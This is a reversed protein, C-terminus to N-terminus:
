AEGLYLLKWTKPGVVGDDSLKYDKQVTLVAAETQPGYVGDIKLNHGFLNNVISQVRKVFAIRKGADTYGSKIVPLDALTGTLVPPPTPKTTMFFNDLLTSQDLDIGNAKSTWQTGDMDSSVQRCTSPGCIHDGQLYHASWLRVKQRSIGNTALDSIITNMNGVSAYVVPRYVNKFLQRKVGGPVQDVTADKWEVDLCEADGSASVTISLLHANPFTKQLFSFTPWSGNVYGAYAAAGKPLNPETIADFMTIM